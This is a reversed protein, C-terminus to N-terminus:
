DELFLHIQRRGNRQCMVQLVVSHGSWTLPIARGRVPFVLPERWAHWPLWHTVGPPGCHGPRTVFGATGAAASRVGMGRGRLNRKAVM